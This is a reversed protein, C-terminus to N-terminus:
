IGPVGAEWVAEPDAGHGARRDRLARACVRRFGRRLAVRERARRYGHARRESPDRGARARAHM